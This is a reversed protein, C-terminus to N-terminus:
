SPPLAQPAFGGGLAHALGISISYQRNRSGAEQRRESILDGEASLVTLYNTLGERYRLVALRYAEELHVVALREQALRAQNARWSTLQSVVDRLADLIAGNYLEVTIDLNANAEALNSRLRGADFVPLSIAPGAGAMFSSAALFQSLGISKFGLFASLDINPYFQAKAADISRTAAEIRWRRAVIDPRRGILDAPLTSPLGIPTTVTLNPREITMGRDPGSGVLVALDYRLLAIREENASIEALTAAIAADAQRTEVETVLGARVLKATLSQIEQKQRLLDRSIDLQDFEGALRVYTRAISAALDLRAAQADIESARLNGLASRYEAERGGWLDLSYSGELAIKNETRVRGALSDPYQGNENFRQDIISAGADLHPYLASDALGALAEARRIRAEAVKISPNGSLAERILRNLQEDRYGNWWDEAPWPAAETSPGATGAIALTNADTMASQRDIEDWSACGTVILAILSTTAVSAKKM